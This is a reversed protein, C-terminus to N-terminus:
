VPLIPTPPHAFGAPATIPVEHSWNTLTVAWAVEAAIRCGSRSATVPTPTISMYRASPAPPDDGAGALRHIRTTTLHEVRPGLAILFPASRTPLM